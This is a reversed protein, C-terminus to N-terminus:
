ATESQEQQDQAPLIKYEERSMFMINLINDHYHWWSDSKSFSIM